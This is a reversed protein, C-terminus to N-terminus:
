DKKYYNQRECRIQKLLDYKLIKNKNKRKEGSTQWPVEPRRPTASAVVTASPEVTASLEIEPVATSTSPRENSHQLERNELREEALNRDITDSNLLIEPM